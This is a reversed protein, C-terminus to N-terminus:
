DFDSYAKVHKDTTKDIIVQCEDIMSSLYLLAEKDSIQQMLKDAWKQDSVAKDFVLSEKINM